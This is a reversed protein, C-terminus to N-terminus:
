RRTRSRAGGGGIVCTPRIGSAGALWGSKKTPQHSITKWMLSPSCVSTVSMMSCTSAAPLKVTNLPVAFPDAGSVVDVERDIRVAEGVHWFDSACVRLGAALKRNVAAAPVHQLDAFGALVLSAWRAECRREPAPPGVNRDASEAVVVWADGSPKTRAIVISLRISTLFRSLGAKPDSGTPRSGCVVRARDVSHQQSVGVRYRGLQPAASERPAFVGPEAPSEADASRTQGRGLTARSDM